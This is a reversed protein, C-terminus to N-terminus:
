AKKLNIGFLGMNTIGIKLAFDSGHVSVGSGSFQELENVNDPLGV